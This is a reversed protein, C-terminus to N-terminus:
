AAAVAAVNIAGSDTGNVRQLNQTPWLLPPVCTDEFSALRLWKSGAATEQKVHM